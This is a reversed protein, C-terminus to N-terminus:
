ENLETSLPRLAKSGGRLPRSTLATVVSFGDRSEDLERERECEAYEFREFSLCKTLQDIQRPVHLLQARRQEVDCRQQQVRREPATQQAPRSLLHPPARKALRTVEESCGDRGRATDTAGSGSTRSGDSM